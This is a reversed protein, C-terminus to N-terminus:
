LAPDALDAATHKQFHARIAAVYAASTPRRAVLLTPDTGARLLAVLHRGAGATVPAATAAVGLFASLARENADDGERTPRFLLLTRDLLRERTLLEYEWLVGPSDGAAIVIAQASRATETVIAQWDEHSSYHRLAGFPASKEGPRGLAVVSGYQAVEDIMMEDANRRFSWLAFWRGVVDWPKLGFDLQDDQFSRLFLIPPRPDDPSAPKWIYSAALRKGFHFALHGAVISAVGLVAGLVGLWARLLVTFGVYVLPRSALFMWFASTRMAAANWLSSPLGVLFAFRVLVGRRIFDGFLLTRPTDGSLIVRLQVTRVIWGALAGAALLLAALIAIDNRSGDALDSAVFVVWIVFAVAGFALLVALASLLRRLARWPALSWVVIGALALATATLLTTRPTAGPVTVDAHLTWFVLCGIVAGGLGFGIAGIAGGTVASVHRWADQRAIWDTLVFALPAFATLLAVGVVGWFAAADESVDFNSVFGVIGAFVTAVQTLVFLPALVAVFAKLTASVDLRRIVAALGSIDITM